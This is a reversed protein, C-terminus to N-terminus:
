NLAGGANGTPEELKPSAQCFICAGSRVDIFYALRNEENKMLFLFNLLIEKIEDICSLNHLL